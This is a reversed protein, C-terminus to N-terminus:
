IANLAFVPIAPTAGAPHEVSEDPETVVYELRKFERHLERMVDTGDGFRILHRFSIDADECQAAFSAAADEALSAFDQRLKERYQSVLPLFDQPIYKANVAVIEYNLRGALGVAYDKLAPSFTHGRGIVLIMTPEKEAREMVRIAEEPMNAEAYTIAEQYMDMKEVVKAAGSKKKLLFRKMNDGRDTKKKKELSIMPIPLRAKLDGPPTASGERDPGDYVALVADRHNEVFRVVEEEMDGVKYTVDYDVPAEGAEECYDMSRAAKAMQHHIRRATQHEGAEAYTAAVM